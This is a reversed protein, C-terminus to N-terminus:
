VKLWIYAAGIQILSEKVLLRPKNAASKQIISGGWWWRIHSEQPVKTMSYKSVIFPRCIVNFHKEAVTSSHMDTTLTLKLYTLLEM